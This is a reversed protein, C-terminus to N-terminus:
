PKNNDKENSINLIDIGKQIRDDLITIVYIIYRLTKNINQMESYEIEEKAKRNLIRVESKLINVLSEELKLGNVILKKALAKEDINKGLM